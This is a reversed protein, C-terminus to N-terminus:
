YYDEIWASWRTTDNGPKVTLRYLGAGSAFVRTQRGGDHLDFGGVSNGSSADSVHASAGSCFVVFTCNGVYGMTYVVRWRTGRVRFQVTRSGTSGSFSSLPQWRPVEAINLSVHSGPTLKAGPAPSQSTVTGAPVGPAVIQKTRASLGLHALAAQADTISDGALQPVRVPRPGASLVVYITSGDTIQRGPHPRQGIVTGKRGTDFRSSFKPQLSLRRAKAKVAAEKLGTLRPVRVHGPTGVAIAGAIM